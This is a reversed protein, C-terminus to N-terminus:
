DFLELYFDEDFITHNLSNPAFELSSRTKQSGQQGMWNLQTKRFRLPSFM